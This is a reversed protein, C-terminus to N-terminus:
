KICGKMEINICKKAGVDYSDATCKDNDDCNPCDSSGYEGSECIGNGKCNLKLTNMCKYGTDKSCFDNTCSNNDNRSAPCEPTIWNILIFIFIIVIIAISKKWWNIEFHRLNNVRKKYHNFFKDFLPTLIFGILVLAILNIKNNTQNCNCNNNILNKHQNIRNKIIKM